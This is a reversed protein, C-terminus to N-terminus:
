NASQQNLSIDIPPAITEDRVWYRRHRNDGGWDILEYRKLKKLKTRRERRSISMLDRGYYFKEAVAEYRDHLEGSGIEGGQHVIAYLLHHHFPLSHLNAKRIRKKAREFGDEVDTDAIKSRGREEAYEAAARLTQIGDRAVGAVTDAINEVQHRPVVNSLGKDARIALIDALEGVGYRELRITRDNEFQNPYTDLRALWDEPDHCIVVTSIGPISALHGLAKTDAVGDAEDLVVIYPANVTERLEDRCDQASAADHFAGPGHPHKRLVTRLIDQTTLGLCRVHAHDIDARSRLRDLTHRALVTKGVGSPGALLVDDAPRNQVVPKFARSLQSVEADRHLLQRPVYEDQFVGPQTIM